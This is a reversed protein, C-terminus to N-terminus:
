SQESINASPNFNLNIEKWDEYQDVFLNQIPSSKRAAEIASNVFKDCENKTLKGCQSEIISLKDISGNKNLNLRLLVRSDSYKKDFCKMNWCRTVQHKIQGKNSDFSCGYLFLLSLLIFTKNM